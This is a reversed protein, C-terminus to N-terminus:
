GIWMPQLLNCLPHKRSPVQHINTHHDHMFINCVTAICMAMVYNNMFDHHSEILSIYLKWWSGLYFDWFIPTDDIHLRHDIAEQQITDKKTKFVYLYVAATQNWGAAIMTMTLVLVQEWLCWFKKEFCCSIILCYGILCVNTILFKELNTTQTTSWWGNDSKHQTMGSDNNVHLGAM